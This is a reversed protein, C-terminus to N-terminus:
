IRSGHARVDAGHVGGGTGRCHLDHVGVGAARGRRFVHTRGVTIGFEGCQFGFLGSSEM